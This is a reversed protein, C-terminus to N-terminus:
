RRRRGQIPPAPEWVATELAVIRDFTEVAGNHQVTLRAGIATLEARLCAIAEAQQRLQRELRELRERDDDSM